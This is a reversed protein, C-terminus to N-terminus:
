SQSGNWMIDKYLIRKMVIVYTSSLKLTCQNTLAHKQAKMVQTALGLDRIIEEALM